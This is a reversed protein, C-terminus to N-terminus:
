FVGLNLFLQNSGYHSPECSACGEIFMQKTQNKFRCSIKQECCAASSVSPQDSHSLCLPFPLANPVVHPLFDRWMTNRALKARVNPIWAQRWAGKLAEATILDNILSIDFRGLSGPTPSLYSQLCWWGDAELMIINCAILGLLGETWASGANTQAVCQCPQNLAQFQSTQTLFCGM